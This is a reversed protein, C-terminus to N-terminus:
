DRKNKQLRKSLLDLAALKNLHQSAHNVSKVTIGTPIHKLQVGIEAGGLQSMPSRCISIEIDSDKTKDMSEVMVLGEAKDSLVM